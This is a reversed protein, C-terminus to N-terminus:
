GGLLAPGDLLPDGPEHRRLRAPRPMGLRQTVFRGPGSNAFETYRDAM